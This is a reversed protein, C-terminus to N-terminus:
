RQPIGNLIRPTYTIPGAATKLFLLFAGGYEGPSLTDDPGASLRM